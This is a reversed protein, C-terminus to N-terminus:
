NWGDEIAEGSYLTRKETKHLQLSPKSQESLVFCTFVDGELNGSNKSM